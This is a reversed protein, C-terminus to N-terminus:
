ETVEYTTEITTTTTPMMQQTPNAAERALQIAEAQGREIQLPDLQNSWYQADSQKSRQAGASRTQRRSETM